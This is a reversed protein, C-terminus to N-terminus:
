ITRGHRIRWASAQPCTEFHTRYRAGAHASIEVRRLVHAVPSGGAVGVIAVTGAPHPEVDLPMPKGKETRAWRIPANCSGCRVPPTSDATV